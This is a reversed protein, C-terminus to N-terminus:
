ERAKDQWHAIHRRHDDIESQIRQQNSTATAVSRNAGAVGAEMERLISLIAAHPDAERDLLENLNCTVIDSLRSFYTM